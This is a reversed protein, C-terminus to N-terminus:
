LDKGFAKAVLLIMRIVEQGISLDDDRAKRTAAAIDFRPGAAKAVKRWGPVHADLWVRFADEPRTDPPAPAPPVVKAARTGPKALYRMACRCGYGLPPIPARIDDVRWITGHLAAHSPRCRPAPPQDPDHDGTADNTTALYQFYVTNPDLGPTTTDQPGLSERDFTVIIPM